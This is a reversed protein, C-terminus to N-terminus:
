KKPICINCQLEQNSNGCITASCPFQQVTENNQCTDHGKCKKIRAASTVKPLMTTLAFILAITVVYLIRKNNMFNGREQM